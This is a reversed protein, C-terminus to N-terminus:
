PLLFEGSCTEQRDNQQHLSYSFCVRYKGPSAPQYFGPLRRDVVGGVRLSGRELSVGIWGGSRFIDKFALYPFWLRLLSKQLRVPIGEYAIETSLGNYVRVCVIGPIDLAKATHISVKNSPGQEPLPPCDLLLSRESRGAIPAFLFLALTGGIIAMRPLRLWAGQAFANPM